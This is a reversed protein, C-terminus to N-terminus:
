AFRYKEGVQLIGHGDALDAAVVIVERKLHDGCTMGMREVAEFARNVLQGRDTLVAAALDYAV